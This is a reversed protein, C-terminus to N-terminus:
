IINLVIFDILDPCQCSVMKLKSDPINDPLATFTEGCMLFRMHRKLHKQSAAHPEPHNQDLAPNETWNFDGGIVLYEDRSCRQIVGDRQAQLQLM